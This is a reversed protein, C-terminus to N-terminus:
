TKSSKDSHGNQFHRKLTVFDNDSKLFEVRLYDVGELMFWNDGMPILKHKNQGKEQYILQKDEITIERSGYSGVYKKLSLADLKVPNQKTEVEKLCWNYFNVRTSDKTKLKELAIAQAKLKAEMASVEIHPKVGTGEWNTKTVPSIARGQPMWVMYKDTVNITGGPHAGGGTIEGVLTGRELNKLNYSFEEAASFTRKSTLVYVDADPNRKGQVHPLTWTQTNEDRPRWYFNNLHVPEADFLYSSILQIMQPSGGGNQRLDIIIAETNSLFNMAAVATEGGHETPFFGRLDLYGINGNLIKVEQFGFNDRKMRAIQRKELKAREEESTANRREAIQQPAYNVRLHLDNSVSRLDKTLRAAFKNPDTISKYVKQKYNDSILQSMEKAVDPFIYNAKLQTCISDITRKQEQKDLTYASSQAHSEVVNILLFIFTIITIYTQKKISSYNM